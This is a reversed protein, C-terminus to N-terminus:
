NMESMSRKRVGCSIAMAAGIVLLLTAPEPVGAVQPGGGNGGAGFNARWYLYDAQDVVGASAGTENGNGNLSDSTNLTNRWTVYDAGDVKGDGNFDGAIGPNVIAANGSAVILRPRFAEDPSGAGNLYIQWGDATTASKLALGYDTTGTRVGELYSTVDFWVESGFLIGIKSDLAATIDNDSQQVGPLAGLESHLTTTSWDRLMRHISWEGNSLSANNATGTNLVVWARAVPVDTPAQNAGNGFVSGFKLLAFDDPSAAVGTTDNPPFQAGDLFQQFGTGTLAAPTLTSNPAVTFTGTAGDYTLDDKKSDVEVNTGFINTGSKVIAMSDASYGNLGRQFTNMEIPDTTYTVSLTPRSERLPHGTSLINWGDTTGTPFGTQIAVGNNAQGNVWNQVIARIDTTGAEGQWNAGFGAMPRNSYGDQWWPGRSVQACGNCTYGDLGAGSPTGTGFYVTGTGGGQSATKFPQLLQAVGWPGDSQANGATSTTVKLEAKLITAGVPIQNAAAGVINEFRILAQADPSPSAGGVFGDLGLNTVTSGDVETVGAAGANGREDIKRDVTGSYGNLGNQFVVQATVAKAAEAYVTCLGGVVLAVMTRQWRNFNM